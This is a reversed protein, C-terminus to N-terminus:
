LWKAINESLIEQLKGNSLYLQITSLTKDDMDRWKKNTVVDALKERSFIVDKVDLTSLITVMHVQWLAFSMKGDYKEIDFRGSIEM